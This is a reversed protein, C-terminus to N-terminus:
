QIMLFIEGFIEISRLDSQDNQCQSDWSKGHRWTDGHEPGLTREFGELARRYYHEADAYRPNQLQEASPRDLYFFLCIFLYIYIYIYISYMHICIYIYRERHKPVYTYIYLIGM